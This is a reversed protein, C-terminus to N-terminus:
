KMLLLYVEAESTAQRTSSSNQLREPLVHALETAGLQVSQFCTLFQLVLLTFAVNQSLVDMNQNM